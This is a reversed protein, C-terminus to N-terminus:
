ARLHNPTALSQTTNPWGAASVPGMPSRPAVNQRRREPPREPLFRARRAVSPVEFQPRKIFRIAPQPRNPRLPAKAFKSELGYHNTGKDMRGLSALGGDECWRNEIPCNPQSPTPNGPATCPIRRPSALGPSPAPLDTRAAASLSQPLCTTPPTCHWRQWILLGAPSPRCVRATMVSRVAGGLAHGAAPTAEAHNRVPRDLLPLPAMAHPRAVGRLIRAPHRGSRPM